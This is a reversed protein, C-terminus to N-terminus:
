RHTGGPWAVARAHSQDACLARPLCPAVSCLEKRCLTRCGGCPMRWVAMRVELCVYSDWEGAGLDKMGGGKAEGINWTVADPFGMKLVKIARDKGM